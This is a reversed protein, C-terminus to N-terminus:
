GVEEDDIWILKGRIGSLIAFFYEAMEEVWENDSLDPYAFQSGQEMHLPRSALSERAFERAREWIRGFGDRVLEPSGDVKRVWFPINLSHAHFRQILYDDYQPCSFEVEGHVGVHSIACVVAESGPARLFRSVDYDKISAWIPSEPYQKMKWEPQVRQGPRCPGEIRDTEIFKLEETQIKISRPLHIEGSTSGAWFSVALARPDSSGDIADSLSCLFRHGTGLSDQEPRLPETSSHSYPRYWEVLQAFARKGGIGLDAYARQIDNKVSRYGENLRDAIEQQTLGPYRLATELIRIQRLTLYVNEDDGGVRVVEAM